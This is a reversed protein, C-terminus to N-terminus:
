VSDQTLVLPLKFMAQSKPKWSHKNPIYIVYMYSIAVNVGQFTTASCKGPLPYKGPVSYYYSKPWPHLLMIQSVFHWITMCMYMYQCGVGFWRDLCTSLVWWLIDSIGSSTQTAVNRLVPCENFDDISTFVWLSGDWVGGTLSSSALAFSGDLIYFLPIKSALILQASWYTVKEIPYPKLICTRWSVESQVEEFAVHFTLGAWRWELVRPHANNPFMCVMARSRDALLSHEYQHDAPTLVAKWLAEALM